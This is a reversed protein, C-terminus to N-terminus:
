GEGGRGRVKMWGSKGKLSAEDGTGDHPAISMVSMAPGARDLLRRDGGVMVPVEDEREEDWAKDTMFDWEAGSIENVLYAKLGDALQRIQPVRWSRFHEIAAASHLSCSASAHSYAGLRIAPAVTSPRSRDSKPAASSINQSLPPRAHDQALFLTYLNKGIACVDEFSTIADTGQSKCLWAVDYALHAAGEIFMEFAKPNEKQLQPLPCSLNLSRPRKRDIQKDLLASNASQSGLIMSHHQSKSKYSSAEPLIVAHSSGSQPLFINELGASILEHSHVTAAADSADGRRGAVTRGHLERMDPIPAGGLWYEAKGKAGRRRQLGALLAAERCLFARADVTRNHVKELRQSAKRTALQVPDLVRPKQCELKKLESAIEVRRQRHADKQKAAWTRYDSIQQRLENAKETIGDIRTEVVQREERAKDFAHKRIGIGIADYDADHPLAAIVGDNGPRVLAEAHMHQKERELLASVQQIRPEYLAARACSACAARRRNNNFGRLCVACDM